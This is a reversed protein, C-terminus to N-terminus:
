YRRFLQKVGTETMKMFLNDPSFMQQNSGNGISFANGIENIKYDKYYQVGKEIEEGAKEVGYKVTSLGIGRLAGGQFLSVSDIGLDTFTDLNPENIFDNFDNLLTIAGTVNSVSSLMNSFNNIMSITIVDETIELSKDLLESAIGTGTSVLDLTKEISFNGQSNDLTRVYNAVKEEDTFTHVVNEGDNLQFVYDKDSLVYYAGYADIVSQPRNIDASVIKNKNDIGFNGNSEPAFPDEFNPVKTETKSPTNNNTSSTTSSSNGSSSSSSGSSTSSSSGSSSSSSSSNNSSSNGTTNSSETQSSSDSTTTTTTQSTSTDTGSSGSNGGSSHEKAWNIDGQTLTVETGDNRVLTDGEKANAVAENSNEVRAGGNILFLEDGTIEHCDSFDYNEFLPYNKNM